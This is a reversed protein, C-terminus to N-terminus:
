IAPKLRVSTGKINRLGWDKIAEMVPGLSGGKETLSYIFRGVTAPDPQAQVIGAELLRHLRDTLINTAIHEPSALFEKFYRRGLMLDRVVLLTWKDGLVDLTCAVPCISRKQKKM